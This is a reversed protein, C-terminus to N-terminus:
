LKSNNNSTENKKKYEDVLKGKVYELTLEDNPRADLATILTEYSDSLSILLVAAVCFDNIDEGIGQLREVMELISRVYSQMDQSDQLKSQYLKRVLYLKNCLNVREYVKQLEEWM